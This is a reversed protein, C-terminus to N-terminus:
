QCPGVPTGVNNVVQSRGALSLTITVATNPEAQAPGAGLVAATGTTIALTALVAGLKKTRM